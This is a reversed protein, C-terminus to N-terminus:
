DDAVAIADGKADKARARARRSRANTMARVRREGRTAEPVRTRTARCGHKASQQPPSLRRPARAPRRRQRAVGAHLAISSPIEHHRAFKKVGPARAANTKKRVDRELTSSHALGARRPRPRASLARRADRPYLTPRCEAASTDHKGQRRRRRRRARARVRQRSSSRRRSRVRADFAHFRRRRARRLAHIERVRIPRRPLPRAPRAVARAHVHGLRLAHVRISRHRLRASIARSPLSLAVIETMAFSAFFRNIWEKM